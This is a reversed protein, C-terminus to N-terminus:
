TVRHWLETLEIGTVRLEEETMEILVTEGDLCQVILDVPGSRGIVADASCPAFRCFADVLGKDSLPVLIGTQRGPSHELLARRSPEVSADTGPMEFADISLYTPDLVLIRRLLQTTAGPGLAAIDAAWAPVRERRRFLRAAM